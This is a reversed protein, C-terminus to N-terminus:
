NTSVNRYCGSSICTQHDRSEGNIEQVCFMEFLLVYLVSVGILFSYGFNM